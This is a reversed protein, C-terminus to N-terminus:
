ALERRDRVLYKGFACHALFLNVTSPGRIEQVLTQWSYGGYIKIMTSNRVIHNAKRRPM